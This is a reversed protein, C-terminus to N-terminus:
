ALDLFRATHPKLGYTITAGKLNLEANEDALEENRLKWQFLECKWVALRRASEQQLVLVRPLAALDFNLPSAALRSLLGARIEAFKGNGGRFGCFSILQSIKVPLIVKSLESKLHSIRQQYLKASSFGDISIDLLSVCKVKKKSLRRHHHQYIPLRRRTTENGAQLWM